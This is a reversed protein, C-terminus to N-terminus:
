GDGFAARVRVWAAAFRHGLGAASDGWRNFWGGNSMGSAGGRVAREMGGGELVQWTEQPTTHAGRRREEAGPRQQREVYGQEQEGSGGGGGRQQQQQQQQGEGDEPGDRARAVGYLAAHQAEVRGGAFSRVSGLRASDLEQETAVM